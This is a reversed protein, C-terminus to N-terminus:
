SVSTPTKNFPLLVVAITSYTASVWHINQVYKDPIFSLYIFYIYPIYRIIICHIYINVHQMKDRLHTYLHSLKFFILVSNKKKEAVVSNMIKKSDPNCM